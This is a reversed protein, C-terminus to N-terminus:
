SPDYFDDNELYYNLAHAYDHINSNHTRDRQFDIVSKFIEVDLLYSANNTQALRPLQDETLDELEDDGELLLIETKTPPIEWHQKNTFLTGSWDLSEYTTLLESLSKFKKVQYSWINDVLPDAAGYIEAVRVKLTTTTIDTKIIPQTLWRYYDESEVTTIGHQTRSAKEELHEM